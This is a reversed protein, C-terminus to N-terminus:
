STAGPALHAVHLLLYAAVAAALLVFLPYALGRPKPVRVPLVFLVSLAVAAARLLGGTGTGPLSEGVAYVVPLVLAAYTVPLGRYSKVPAAEAPARLNFWALRLVACSGYVWAIAVDVAAIGAGPGRDVAALILVVPVVGFSAVDVLSDLEAGLPSAGGTRRAVWGDFLDALGATVLLVFAEPLRGDVALGAAALGLGLGLLTVLTAARSTGSIPPSRDM